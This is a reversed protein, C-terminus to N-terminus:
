DNLVHLFSYFEDESRCSKADHYSHCCHLYFLNLAMFFCWNSYHNISCSRIVQQLLRSCSGLLTISPISISSHIVNPLPSSYSHVTFYHPRNLFFHVMLLDLCPFSQSTLHQPYSHLHPRSCHERNSIYHSGCLFNLSKVVANFFQSFNPTM